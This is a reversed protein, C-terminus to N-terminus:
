FRKKRDHGTMHVEKRIHGAFEIQSQYISRALPTFSLLGMSLTNTVQFISSLNLKGKLSWYKGNTLYHQRMESLRRKNNALKLARCRPAHATISLTLSKKKKRHTHIRSDGDPMNQRRQHPMNRVAVKGATTYSMVRAMVQLTRSHEYSTSFGAHETILM